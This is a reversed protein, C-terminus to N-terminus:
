QHTFHRVLVVVRVMVPDAGAPTAVGTRLGEGEISITEGTSRGDGEDELMWNSVWSGGDDLGMGKDWECLLAGSLEDDETDLRFIFSPRRIWSASTSTSVMSSSAAPLM